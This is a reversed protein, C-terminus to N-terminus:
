ETIANVTALFVALDADPHCKTGITAADHTHNEATRNSLHTKPNEHSDGARYKPRLSPASVAISTATM